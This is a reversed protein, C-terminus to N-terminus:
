LFKKLGERGLADESCDPFSGHGSLEPDPYEMFTGPIGGRKM